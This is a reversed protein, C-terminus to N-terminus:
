LFQISTGEFIACTLTGSRWAGTDINIRNSRVDPHVVPTHGHVIYKAHQLSFNLFGERIWLLDELTQRDLPVAPRIGAHVFLYDGCYIWPRLCQLFLQHTRPFAHCFRQHIATGNGAEGLRSTVGYSILTQLGGLRLWAALAAPDRLFDEMLEEHNGRLCIARNRVMRAALLDIVDRSDPGRDIYDGLFIEVSYTIPRRSLDEDLRELTDRLLDARGHIDGVAYIRTEAPTSAILAPSHEPPRQQM